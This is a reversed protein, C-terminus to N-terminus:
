CKLGFHLVNSELVFIGIVNERGNCVLDGQKLSYGAKCHKQWQFLLLCDKGVARRMRDLWGEKKAWLFAKDTM